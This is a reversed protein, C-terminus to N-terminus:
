CPVKGREYDARNRAAQLSVASLNMLAESIIVSSSQVLGCSRPCAAKRGPLEGIIKVTEM